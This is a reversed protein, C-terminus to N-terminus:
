TWHWGKFSFQEWRLYGESGKVHSSEKGHNHEPFVSHIAQKMFNSFMLKQSLNTLTDLPVFCGEVQLPEKGSISWQFCPKIWAKLSSITHYLNSLSQLRGDKPSFCYTAKDGSEETMQEEDGKIFPPFSYHFAVKWLPSEWTWSTWKGAVGVHVKACALTEAHSYSM